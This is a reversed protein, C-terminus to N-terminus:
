RRYTNRLWSEAWKGRPAYDTDLSGGCSLVWEWWVVGLWWPEGVFVQHLAAYANVQLQQGLGGAGDVEREGFPARGVFTASQYGAEVFLM